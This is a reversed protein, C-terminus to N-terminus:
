WQDAVYQWTSRLLTQKVSINHFGSYNPIKQQIKEKVDCASNLVDIDVAVVDGVDVIACFLKSVM